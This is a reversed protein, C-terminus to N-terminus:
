WEASQNFEHIDEQSGLSASHRHQRTASSPASASPRARYQLLEEVSLGATTPRVTVDGFRALTDLLVVDYLLQWRDRNQLGVPDCAEAVCGDTGSPADDEPPLYFRDTSSAAGVTDRVAFSVRGRCGRDAMVWRYIDSAVDIGEVQLTMVSLGNDRVESWGWRHSVHLAHRYEIRHWRGDAVFQLACVTHHVTYAPKDGISVDVTEVEQWQEKAQACAIERVANVVSPSVDQAVAEGAITAALTLAVVHGALVRPVQPAAVRETETLRLGTPEM